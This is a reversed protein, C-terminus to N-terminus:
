RDISYVIDGGTAAGSSQTELRWHSSLTYRMSLTSVPNFLGIGYSVYLKPSLYKGVTFAAQDSGEGAGSGIGIDDVGLRDGVDNLVKNGRSSGLALAARAVLSAQKSNTGDLPRGLLLWSLQQSQSMGPESFLTLRPQSIPGRVQVGVTIDESPYRAAKIDLGPSSVPGGAFLIRGEQIDLSQGYARYAGDVVRIEGTGTPVDGPQQVVRLDGTLNATLGFGDISVKDGLIVRVDAHIARSIAAAEPTTGDDSVIVQDGSVTTVGAAPLDRPTISAEPITVSGTVDVRTPTVAVKLDPSVFAKADPINVVQFRDGEITLDVDQGEDNLAIAGNASLQGGGSTAAADIDISDGRGVAALKVGTLVLGPTVLVIRSADLTINGLVNPKALTGNLRLDGAIHGNLEDVEPSLKEVVSLKAIDINVSGSLPRETLPQSGGGVNMDARIGGTDALPLNVSADLGSDNLVASIRGPQMDVIRVVSDDPQTMDVSGNSTTLQANVDPNGNTPLRADVTGSISGDIDLGEPFFPRAYDYAFDSLQVHAASAKADHSGRLCVRSGGSTLCADKISQANASVLGSAPAALSWPALKDYAATLRNLTFRWNMTKKNLGGDLGLDAKAIDSDVRASISHASPTGDMNLVVADIKQGGADVGDINLEVKSQSAGSWDVRADLAASNVRNAEFAINRGDLTARVNPAAVKGKVTGSTKLTGALTPWATSLDTSDIDWRGDLLADPTWGFRGVIDATTAGSVLHLKDVLVHDGLYRAKADLRLPQGRLTGNATLTDVNATLVDGDQKARVDADLDFDGPVDAVIAGPNIGRGELHAVVDLAPAWIVKANGSIDGPGGSINLKALDFSEMTGSGDLSLKGETQGVVQWALATDLQYATMEGTLRVKGNDSRYAPAGKLPWQLESWDVTLDMANGEALAVQGKASLNGSMDPSSLDLRDIIVAAPTYHVLASVVAKGYDASDANTDLTVALNDIPGKATVTTSVSAEPLDKKIQQLHTDDLTVTADVEPADLADAVAGKLSVNYPANVQAAFGLSSLDGKIEAKAKVPALDPLRLTANLGLNTAYGGRPNLAANADIDFLPGNGTLSEIKWNEGDLRANVLRVTDVVIPEAEPATIASLDDLSVRDIQVTVPLDIADPLSFPEGTPEPEPAAEVVQTVEYDLGRVALNRVHVTRSLLEKATWDFDVANVALHLSDTDVKVGRVELPGILRGEVSAVEIGEPLRPGIQGWAFDLGSRTTAVWAVLGIVILVLLLVILLTWKIVRWVRSRRKRPKRQKKAKPDPTNDPQESM